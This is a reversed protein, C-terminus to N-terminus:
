MESFKVYKFHAIYDTQIYTYLDPFDDIQYSLFCKCREGTEKYEKTIWGEQVGMDSRSESM